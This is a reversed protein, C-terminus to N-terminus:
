YLTYEMRPGIAYRGSNRGYLAIGGDKVQLTVNVEKGSLSSLCRSPIDVRILEGYSGAEDLLRVNPQRHWSLVGRSDAWDNQLTIEGMSIGDVLLEAHSPCRSEDTMFYSNDFSGRDVGRSCVLEGVPIEAQLSKYDKAICRKSGAEMVFSLSSLREPLKARFTVTGSGGCCLKEHGQPRWVLAFGSARSKRLNLPLTNEQLVGQVDFTVFNRSVVGKEDTLYLSLIVLSDERPMKVQLDPLKTVGWGYAPLPLEGEGCPVRGRSSDYWLEWRLTMEKGHHEGCWSSVALPVTVTDEPVATRCPACDTVIMDGAHLDRLTMGRCFSGYGWDKDSRDIRYYGNFENVVDCLETFVFGCLKDQLRFENMMYHYQWALDSDGASGDVGWVMGCESNMLPAGTQTCGPACNFPSGPYTKHCVERVHDRLVEYGNLYFHWSNVDSVVHDYNCPSNDEILRTPDDAKAALYQAKVWAQTEPLYTKAEGEGTFLGWTENFLTWYILAPHNYDRRFIEEREQEWAAKAAETPEGWFNPIDAILLVGLKDEWYLKRPDEAKIHTRLMNLGLQKVRLIEDRLDDDTPFTFFGEPHFAQDLTGQLYVPKGNLTIWAHDRGEYNVSGIERLGFYTSVTDDGLQIVGEYLFPNEPSWLEFPEVITFDLVAKGNQVPATAAAGPFDCMVMVGDQANTHVTLTVDGTCRTVFRFDTIYEAPREELWVTQWIGQIDGYGQKGYTQDKRRYDACRVEVTNEGEQWLDTVDAEFPTYGGRHTMVPTGNVFVETEYDAGGFCLWLRGSPAYVATRRYWGVGPEDTEVGSLPCGWSFPVTIVRDYIRKGAHFEAERAEEGQPFLAFDWAGNLNLWRSRQRDPRPYEPKPIQSM